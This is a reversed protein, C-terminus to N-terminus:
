LKSKMTPLNVPSLPALSAVDNLLDTTLPLSNVIAEVEILLTQLSADSLNSGHTKLLSNLIARSSWIQRELVEEM